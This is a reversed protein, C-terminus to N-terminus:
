PRGVERLWAEMSVMTAERQKEVAVVEEALARREEEKSMAQKREMEETLQTMEVELLRKEQEQEEQLSTLREEM